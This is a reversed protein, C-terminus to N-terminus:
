YDFGANYKELLNKEEGAPQYPIGNGPVTQKLQRVVEASAEKKGPNNLKEKIGRNFFTLFEKVEEPSIGRHTLHWIHHFDFDYLPVRVPKKVSLFIEDIADCATEWNMTMHSWEFSEGRIRYKEKQKWIPTIPEAYWLQSRYFDLGSEEIFQLTDRLTERTEGPFGIIFNGFTVIGYEKLLEIGQLYKSTNAGKNMNKLIRDNGSEIGLFVGECGSEKMLAVMERDSYQCRFYSHWKFKFKNKIITKLIEKYREKPINFTDDIFHLSNVTKIKSLRNLEAEIERAPATQYEGAHEPYGCFACSFPCSIATRVNVFEGAKGAFLDWNVMNESLKNNEKKTSTREYGNGNDRKYYVNNIQRPPLNKKLAEIIKVLTAEGQSSNIYFDAGITSEFLYELSEPDLTRVKTSVFPGGLIIKATHNYTKIFDIIELIPLVSVYLTTIIAITLINNQELIKSLKVKEEQFSNVFDFNLGRNHLYTGLYAIAANFTEGIKLSGTTGKGGPGNNFLNFIGAATYPRSNICIYDLNLDRYAGSNRGMKKINKEYEEFDMQNHGILLCDIKKEM